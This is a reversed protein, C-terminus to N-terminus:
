VASLILNRSRGVRLAIVVVIWSVILARRRSVIRRGSSVGVVVIGLM